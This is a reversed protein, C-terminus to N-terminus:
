FNYKVAFEVVRRGTTFMPKGNTLVNLNTQSLTNNNNFNLNIDGNGGAGFQPLPHNLFNFTSFRLQVKHHEKFDFNKYIALDSNFFAPGHIYPWIIDGNAGGTPPAFCSTNFYQGSSLNSRPDCTLKPFVNLANTGLYRQGSYNDPLSVNLTGGTNPQIPAGSQLQTIGSLVWGNVVGGAFRNGKILTPLNVVYAANFIHTHDWALVGYNSRLSFPDLTNGASPGNDSQNDRVGLV